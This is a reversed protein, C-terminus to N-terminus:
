GAYRTDTLSLLLGLSDVQAPEQETVVVIKDPTLEPEPKDPQNQKPPWPQHHRMTTAPLTGSGDTQINQKRPSDLRLM